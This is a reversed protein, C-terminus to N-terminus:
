RMAELESIERRMARMQGTYNANGGNNYFNDDSMEREHRAQAVAQWEKELDSIIADLAVDIDFNKTIM